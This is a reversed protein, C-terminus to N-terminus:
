SGGWKKLLLGEKDRFTGSVIAIVDVLWGIGCWGATLLFMIGSGIKGVYFRHVGWIGFVFCLLFAIGRSKDSENTRVYVTQYVPKEVYVVHQSPKEVYVVKPESVPPEEKIFDTSGCNPCKRQNDFIHAKCYACYAM